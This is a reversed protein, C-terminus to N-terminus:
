SCEKVVSDFQIDTRLASVRQKVPEVCETMGAATETSSQIRCNLVQLPALAAIGHAMEEM